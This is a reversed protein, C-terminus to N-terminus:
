SEETNSGFSVPSDMHSLYAGTRFTTWPRFTNGAQRYIAFAADANNQPNYLEQESYEPHAALNIQWLGISRGLDVDGVANTDGSSEAFAIAVAIGLDIGSFGANKAWGAVSDRPANM